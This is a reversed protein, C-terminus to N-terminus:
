YKSESVLSRDRLIIIAVSGAKMIAVSVKTIIFNEEILLAVKVFVAFM